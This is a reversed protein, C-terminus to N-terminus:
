KVYNIYKLISYSIISNIRVLGSNSRLKSISLNIHIPTHYYNLQYYDAFQNIFEVISLFSNM